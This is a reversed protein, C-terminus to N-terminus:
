PTGWRLAKLESISLLPVSVMFPYKAAPAASGGTVLTTGPGRHDPYALDLCTLPAHGSMVSGLGRNQTEVETAETAPKPFCHSGNDSLLRFQTLVGRPAQQCVGKLRCQYYSMNWVSQYCLWLSSNSCPHVGSPSSGPVKGDPLLDSVHGTNSVGCGEQPFPRVDPTGKKSEHGFWAAGLQQHQGKPVQAM